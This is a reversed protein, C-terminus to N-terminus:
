PRDGGKKTLFWNNAFLVLKHQGGQWTKSSLVMEGTEKSHVEAYFFSPFSDICFWSIISIYVDM